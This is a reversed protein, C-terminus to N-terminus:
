LDKRDKTLVMNHDVAAWYLMVLGCLLFIALAFFQGNVWDYGAFALCACAGLMKFNIMRYFEGLGCVM